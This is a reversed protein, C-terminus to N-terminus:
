DTEMTHVRQMLEIVVSTGAVILIVTLVLLLLSNQLSGIVANGVIACLLFSSVIAAPTSKRVFGIRMAILSIVNASVILVFITSLMSIFLDLSLRDNVIPVFSETVSFILLPVISGLIMAVMSFVSVLIIKALLMKKRNVPYTFLLLLRNGAYEEIVVRSYIVSSLICFCIMSIISTFLFINPYTQFDPEKEVQAVYSIFYIFVVLGLSILISAKVYTHMRHRQLELRILKHM